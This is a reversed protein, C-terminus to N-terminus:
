SIASRMSVPDPTIGTWIEFSRMGQGILMDIGHVLRCGRESAIRILPSIGGYTIDFVTQDSDIEDIRVPYGSDSYMGVPTCNVIMDYGRPDGDDRIGCGFERCLRSVTVPNRGAIDVESGETTFLYTCARAAGGSGMILIRMGNPDPIGSRELAYGAGSVDTNYGILRGDDNLITNVAGTSEAAMDLSDLCGIIDTKYPVTVNAGRIGYCRIMEEADDISPVDFNLYSGAIGADSLARSMMKASFSHSLPHGFLGLVMHDDGISVSEKVSLQGPATPTGTHAYMFQIGLLDSRIRTIMGLEGMGILIHPRKISLSAEHIAVLDSPSRVAFAGKAIDCDFSNLREAIDEAAWTRETDHVSAIIGIGTTPRRREGIDMYGNCIRDACRVLQGDDTIKVIMPVNIGPPIDGFIDMRIEILEAGGIHILEDSSGVSACTRTM